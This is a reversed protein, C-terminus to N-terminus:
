HRRDARARQERQERQERRALTFSTVGLGVVILGLVISLWDKRPGEHATFQVLALVLVAATCILQTIKSAPM